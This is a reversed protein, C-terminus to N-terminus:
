KSRWLLVFAGLLAGLLDMVLDISTDLPYNRADYIRYLYEFVEWSVGVLVIALIVLAYARPLLAPFRYRIAYAVVAGVLLGGLGHMIIDMWWFRWYLSEALALHQLYAILGGLATIALLFSARLAM